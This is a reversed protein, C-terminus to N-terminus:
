SQKVYVSNRDIHVANLHQELEALDSLLVNHVIDADIGSQSPVNLDVSNELTNVSVGTLYQGLTSQSLTTKLARVIMQMAQIYQYHNRDNYAANAQELLQMMCFFNRQNFEGVIPSLTILPTTSTTSKNPYPTPSTTIQPHSRTSSSIRTLPYLTAIIPRTPSVSTENNADNSNFVFVKLALLVIIAVILLTILVCCLILAVILATKTSRQKRFTVPHPDTSFANSTLINGPANGGHNVTGRTRAMYEAGTGPEFTNASTDTTYVQDPSVYESDRRRQFKGARGFSM